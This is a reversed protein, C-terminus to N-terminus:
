TRASTIRSRISNILRMANRHIINDIEAGTLKKVTEWLREPFKPWLSDSPSYDCEYAIMDRLPTSIRSGLRM